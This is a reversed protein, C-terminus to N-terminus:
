ATLNPVLVREIVHLVGNEAVQDRLWVNTGNVTFNDNEGSLDLSQSDILTKVVKDDKVDKSYVIENPVLHFKLINELREKNSLFDDESLDLTLLLKKIAENNPAFVTFKSKSSLLDILGTSSLAKYMLSLDETDKLIDSLNTM